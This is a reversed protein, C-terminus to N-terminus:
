KILGNSRLLKTPDILHRKFWNGSDPLGLALGILETFYFVPLDNDDPKRRMELNTQCLPCTTVIAEAGAEAAMTVLKSVLGTSVDSRPMSLGAGCCDTKYSWPRAEAGLVTVMDDLIMPNEPQEFGTVEVPRVLLCGYYCVLKLGKLPNKVMPGINALGVYNTIAEILSLVKSEGTYSFELLQELNRRTAEDGQLEHEAHKLRSYCASCPVVADLGTKQIMKINYAPLATALNASTAHASTAGCCAWDPVEVLQVSLAQCVSRTSLDFEKATSELSCGPYYSLKLIRVGKEM